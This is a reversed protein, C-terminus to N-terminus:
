CQTRRLCCAVRACRCAGFTALSRLRQFGSTWGRERDHSDQTLGSQRLIWAPFGLRYRPIPGPARTRSVSVGAGPAEPRVVTPPVAAVLGQLWDAFFGAVWEVNRETLGYCLGNEPTM